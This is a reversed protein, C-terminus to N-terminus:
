GALSLLWSAISHWLPTASLPIQLVKVAVLIAGGIVYVQHPRGRTRWDFVMAVAILLYAVLAPMLAIGVPPPGPPGDPALFTLFWRAVPADLISITALLMLRKHWEPRRVNRIALVFTIAFFMIGAIPVIVFAEGASELGLAAANQLQRISALVGLMTMATALSIGVMGVSRHRAIRGSSALWVQWVVFLTWAFFVMGHIHIVSHTQLTGAALPLWYTPAFGLFAVLACSAAMYVYFRDASTSSLEGRSQDVHATM